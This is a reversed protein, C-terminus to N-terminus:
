IPKKYNIYPDAFHLKMSALMKSYISLKPIGIQGKELNFKFNLVYVDLAKKELHILDDIDKFYVADYEKYNLKESSSLITRCKQFHQKCYQEELKNNCVITCTMYESASLHHALKAFSYLEALELIEKQHTDYVEKYLADIQNIYEKKFIISLPNKTDRETLMARYFYIDNNKIIDSDIYKSDSFNLKFYKMFAIDLDVLSDFTFLVNSLMRNTIAM